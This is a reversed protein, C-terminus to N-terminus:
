CDGTNKAEAALMRWCRRAQQMASRSFPSLGFAEDFVDSVGEAELLASPFRAPSDLSLLM